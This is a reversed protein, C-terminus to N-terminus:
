LKKAEKILNRAKNRMERLNTETPFQLKDCMIEFEKLMELMEDYKQQKKSELQLAHNIEKCFLEILKSDYNSLQEILWSVPTEKKDSM